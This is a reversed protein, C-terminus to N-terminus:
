LMASKISEIIKARRTSPGMFNEIRKIWENGDITENFEVLFGYAIVAHYFVEFTEKPLEFGSRAKANTGKSTRSITYTQNM